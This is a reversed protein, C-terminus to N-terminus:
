PHVKRAPSSQSRHGCLSCTFSFLALFEPTQTLRPIRDGEFFPRYFGGPKVNGPRSRPRPDRHRQIQSEDDVGDEFFVSKRPFAIM